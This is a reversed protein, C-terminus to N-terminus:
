FIVSVMSPEHDLATLSTLVRMLLQEDTQLNNLIKNVIVDQKNLAILAEAM